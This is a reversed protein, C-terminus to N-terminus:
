PAALHVEPAAPIIKPSKKRPGAVAFASLTTCLLSMVFLLALATFTHNARAQADASDSMVMVAGVLVSLCTALAFVLAAACMLIFEITAARRHPIFGAAAGLVGLLVPLTSLRWNIAFAPWAAWSALILFAANGIVLIVWAPHVKLRTAVSVDIEPM